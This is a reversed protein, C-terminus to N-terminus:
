TKRIKAQSLYFSYGKEMKKFVTLNEMFISLIKEEQLEPFRCKCTIIERDNSVM